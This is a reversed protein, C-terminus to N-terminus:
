KYESDDQIITTATDSLGVDNMMYKGVAARDKVNIDKIEKENGMIKKMANSNRIYERLYADDKKYADRNVDNTIENKDKIAERQTLIDSSIPENEAVIDKAYVNASLMLAITTLGVIKNLM